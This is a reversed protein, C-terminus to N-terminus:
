RIRRPDYEFRSGNESELPSLQVVNSSTAFVPANNSSAEIETKVGTVAGTDVNYFTTVEDSVMEM